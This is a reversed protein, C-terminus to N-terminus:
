DNVTSTLHIPAGTVDISRLCRNSSVSAFSLMSLIMNTRSEAPESTLCTLYEETIRCTYHPLRYRYKQSRDHVM